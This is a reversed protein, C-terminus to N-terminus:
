HFMILKLIILLVLHAPYVGYSIWKPTHVDKPFRILIFPLSLLAYTELRMFAGLPGSLWAPWGSIDVAIGFLSSTLRYGTGWYMFFAIMVAAIGPRSCRVAYMLIFLMIGKWGYDTNLVTALILAAAPAWIHSLWKKERLGWMAALGLFLTLFINPKTFFFARIVQWLGDVTFGGALPAILQQILVGIHGQNDLALVYLPQSIFGVLLLRLLYSPVSRTRQLGVIMCWVYIPFAIRGLLRMDQNNGFLVKGSHDIFMFFLAILRLLGTATNGAVPPDGAPATKRIIVSMEAVCGKMKM